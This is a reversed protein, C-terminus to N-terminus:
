QTTDRVPVGMQRAQELMADVNGEPDSNYAEELASVRDTPGSDAAGTAAGTIVGQGAAVADKQAQQEPTLDAPKELVGVEIAAAKIADPTLEGDYGKAFMQAKANEKDNVDIGSRLFALEKDQAQIRAEATTARETVSKVKGRAKAWDSNSPQEDPGIVPLDDQDVQPTQNTTETM